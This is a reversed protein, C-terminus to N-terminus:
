RVTRTGGSLSKLRNAHRRRGARCVVPVAYPSSFPGGAVMQVRATTPSEFAPLLM